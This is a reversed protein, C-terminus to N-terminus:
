ALLLAIIWSPPFAAEVEPCAAPLQLEDSSGVLERGCPPLHRRALLHQRALLHEGVPGLTGSFALTPETIVIQLLLDV